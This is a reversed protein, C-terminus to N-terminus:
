YGCHACCHLILAYSMDNMVQSAKHLVANDCPGATRYWFSRIRMALIHFVLKIPNLEPSRTPLYIVLIHLPCGNIITDWLMDKIVRANGRSHLITANDMVLFKDHLLFRKAILYTLFSVFAESTGNDKGITYDMPHAKVPNPSIIAM